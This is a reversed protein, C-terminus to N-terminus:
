RRELRMRKWIRYLKLQRVGLQSWLGLGILFMVWRFYPLLDGFGVEAQWMVCMEVLVIHIIMAKHIFCLHYFESAKMLMRAGYPTFGFVFGVWLTSSDAVILYLCYLTMVLDAVLVDRRVDNGIKRILTM